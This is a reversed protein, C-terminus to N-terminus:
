SIVPNSIKVWESRLVSRAEELMKNYSDTFKDHDGNFDAALSYLVNIKNLLFKHDDSDLYLHLISRQRALKLKYENKIRLKETLDDLMMKALLYEAKKADEIIQSHNYNMNTLTIAVAALELCHERVSNLWEHRPKSEAETKVHLKAIELQANIANVQVTESSKIGLYTFWLAGAPVITPILAMVWDLFGKDSNMNITLEAGKKGILALLEIIDM